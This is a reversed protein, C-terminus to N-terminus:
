LAQTEIQRAGAQCRGSQKVTFAHQRGDQVRSSLGKPIVANSRSKEVFHLLRAYFFRHAQQACHWRRALCQDSDTAALREVDRLIGSGKSSQRVERRRSGKGVVTEARWLRTQGQLALTPGQGSTKGFRNYDIDGHTLPRRQRKPM